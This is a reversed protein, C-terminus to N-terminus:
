STRKLLTQLAIYIDGVSYVTKKELGILAGHCSLEPETETVFSLQGFPLCTQGFHNVIPSHAMVPATHPKKKKKKFM